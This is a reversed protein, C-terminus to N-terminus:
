VRYGSVNVGTGKSKKELIQGILKLLAISLEVKQFLSVYQWSLHAGFIDDFVVNLAPAMHRPVMQVQHHEFLDGLLKVIKVTNNYICLEKEHALIEAFLASSPLIKKVLNVDLADMTDLFADGIDHNYDSVLRKFLSEFGDKYLPIQHSKLNTYLKLAAVTLDHQADSNTLIGELITWGDAPQNALHWQVIPGLASSTPEGNAGPEVQYLGSVTREKKLTWVTGSPNTEIEDETERGTIPESIYMLENLLQIINKQGIEDTTLSSIIKFTVNYEQPLMRVQREIFGALGTENEGYFTFSPWFADRAVNSVNFVGSIADAVEAAGGVSDIDFHKLVLDILALVVKAGATLAEPSENLQPLSIMRQTVSWVRSTGLQDTAFALSSMKEIVLENQEDFPHLYRVVAWTLQLPALVDVDEVLLRLLAKDLLKLLDPQDVSHIALKILVIQLLVAALNKLKDAVVSDVLYGGGDNLLFFSKTAIKFVREVVTVDPAPEVTDLTLLITEILFCKERLYQLHMAAIMESNLDRSRPPVADSKLNHEFQTLMTNLFGKSLKGRQEDMDPSTLLHNTIKILYIRDKQYAKLLGSLIAPSTEGENEM